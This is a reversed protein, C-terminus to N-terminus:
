LDTNNSGNLTKELARKGIEKMKRKSKANIESVNLGKGNGITCRYRTTKKNDINASSNIDHGSATSHRVKIQIM